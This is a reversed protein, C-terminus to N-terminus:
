SCCPPCHPQFLPTPPYSTLPLPIPECLAKRTLLKAEATFPTPFQLLTHLQLTVPDSLDSFIRGVTNACSASITPLGHLCLKHSRRRQGEGRQLSPFLPPPPPPAYGSKRVTLAHRGRTCLWRGRRPDSAPLPPSHGGPPMELPCGPTLDLTAECDPITHSRHM